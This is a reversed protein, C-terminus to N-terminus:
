RAPEALELVVGVLLRFGRELLDVQRRTVPDMSEGATEQLEDLELLVQRLEDM